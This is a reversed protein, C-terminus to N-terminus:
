AGARTSYRRISWNWFRHIVFLAGCAVSLLTALLIPEFPDVLIRTPVSAIMAVPFIFLIFYRIKGGYLRDPRTGLRFVSFFIEMFGEAQPLVICLTAFFLRIAYFIALGAPIVLFLSGLQIWSISDLLSLSWALWSGAFLLNLLFGCQLRPMSMLCQSSFPKLLALDLDGRSVRAKFDDFNHAFLIMQLADIFFLLGLFVRMEPLHWGGLDTVHLYLSEFLIIQVSYWLIDNFFQAFLNFPQQLDAILSLRFFIWEVQWFKKM